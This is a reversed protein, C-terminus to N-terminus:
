RSDCRRPRRPRRAPRGNITNILIELTLAVLRQAIRVALVAPKKALHQELRMQSQPQCLRERDPPPDLRPTTDRTASHCSNPSTKSSPQAHEWPKSTSTSRVGGPSHKTRDFRTSSTAYDEVHRALEVGDDIKHRYLHEYKL